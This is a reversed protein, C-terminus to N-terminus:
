NGVMKERVFLVMYCELLVGAVVSPWMMGGDVLRACIITVEVLIGTVPQLMGTWRLLPRFASVGWFYMLAHHLAN